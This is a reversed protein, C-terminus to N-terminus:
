EEDRNATHLNRPVRYLALVDDFTVIGLLQHVNARSVVPLAEVFHVRSRDPWGARWDARNTFLGILRLLALAVFACVAGVVMALASIM